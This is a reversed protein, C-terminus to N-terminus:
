REPAVCPFGVLARGAQMSADLPTVECSEITAPAGGIKSLCEAVVGQTDYDVVMVRLKADAFVETVRGAEVKIVVRVAAANKPDRM